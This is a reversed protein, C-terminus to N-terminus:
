GSRWRPRARVELGLTEGLQPCRGGGRVVDRQPTLRLHRATLERLDGLREIGELMRIPAVREGRSGILLRDAEVVTVRQDLRMGALGRAASDIAERAIGVIQHDVALGIAPPQLGAKRGLPPSSRRGLRWSGGRPPPIGIGGRTARTTGPADSPRARAGIGGRWWRPYRDSGATSIGARHFGCLPKWRAKSIEGLGRSEWM